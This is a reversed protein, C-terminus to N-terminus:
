TLAQRHTVAPTMPVTHTDVIVTPDQRQLDISQGSMGSKMMFLMHEALTYNKLELGRTM